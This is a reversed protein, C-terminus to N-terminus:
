RERVRLLPEARPWSVVPGDKCLFLSGLQCRGCHGVACHMNRELSLWVEAPDVGRDLVSQAAFRMMVEPGCVFATANDPDIPAREVLRTVVGVEGRWVPSAADVTIEVEMDFRGRWAELQDRYLLSDPTRAGILLVARGYDARHALLEIVIPRIPAIGLGGAIMLIDRGAARSLNWGTGFPGRVGIQDGITASCLAGTVAGVRRVTHSLVGNEFGSLSIPAEGVGFAWLMNFQGSSPDPCAEGVPVLGLTVTDGLDERRSVVRYMRPTMPGLGSTIPGAPIPGAPIPGSTIPGAPLSPEPSTM